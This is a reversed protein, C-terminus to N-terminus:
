RSSAGWRTSLEQEPPEPLAGPGCLGRGPLSEPCPLMVRMPCKTFQAARLGLLSLQLCSSPGPFGPRSVIDTTGESTLHEPLVEQTGPLAIFLPSQM